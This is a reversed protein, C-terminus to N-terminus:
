GVLKQHSENLLTASFMFPNYQFVGDSLTISSLTIAVGSLLIVSLSLSLKKTFFIDQSDM